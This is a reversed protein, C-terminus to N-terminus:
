EEIIDLKKEWPLHEGDLKHYYGYINDAGDRYSVYYSQELTFGYKKHIQYTRAAVEQHWESVPSRHGELASGICPKWISPYAIVGISALYEVGEMLSEKPELGAVLCSRVNGKGFVEVEHKLAELWHDHGGCIQVKGPCISKFINEDWIEINTAIHQYGAEKYKEIVSLDSPAGVCAMGHVDETGAHGIVSEIVDLYYEVERREPVFGGTLNFGHYGESFAEALTEGIQQPNKWEINELEAFRNKTDNINCFLCDMGKDKLSCENSYTIQLRGKSLAQVIRSMPRGDSTKKNYFAPKHEFLVEDLVEDEGEILLYAEGSKVISLDSAPNWYLDTFFGTTKLRFGVPLKSEVYSKFSWDFCAHVQELYTNQYDLEKFISTDIKVGENDLRVLLAIDQLGKKKTFGM